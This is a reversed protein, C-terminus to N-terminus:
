LCVCAKFWDLSCVYWNRSDEGLINAVDMLARRWRQKVEETKGVCTKDFAKGFDGTQKRVDSPDVQYFVTLVTQRGIEDRCRM